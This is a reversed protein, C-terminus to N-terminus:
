IKEFVIDRINRGASLGKEEFKTIPRWEPRQVPNFWVNRLRREALFTNLIHEAYPEWDTAAHIKGGPKLAQVLLNVFPPQILRRKHHKRRPWPDPFWIHIADVSDPPIQESFVAVADRQIVRINDLNEHEMWWLLKGVGPPHVEIGLIGWNPHTAAVQRTANGMGFGIEVVRRNAGPFLEEWEVMDPCIIWKGSLEMLARQQADSM